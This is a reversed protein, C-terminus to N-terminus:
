SFPELMPTNEKPHWLWSILILDNGHGHEGALFWCSCVQSCTSDLVLQTEEENGHTDWSSSTLLFGSCSKPKPQHNSPSGSLPPDNLDSASLWPLETIWREIFRVSLLSSSPYSLATGPFLTATMWKLWFFPTNPIQPTACHGKIKGTSLFCSSNGDHQRM